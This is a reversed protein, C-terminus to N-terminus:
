DEVQATWFDSDDMADKMSQLIPSKKKTAKYLATLEDGADPDSRNPSLVNVLTRLGSLLECMWADIDEDLDLPLADEMYTVFKSCLNLLPEADRSKDVDLVEQLVVQKFVQEFTVLKDAQSGEITALAPALPDFAEQEGVHWTRLMAALCAITSDTQWRQEKGKLAVKRARAKLLDNKLQTPWDVSYDRLQELASQLEQDPVAILSWGNVKQATEAMKIHKRLQKAPLDKGAEDLRPLLGNAFALQKGFRKGSLIQTINITEIWHSAPLAMGVKDDVGQTAGDGLKSKSDARAPKPKKQDTDGFVSLAAQSTGRKRTSAEQVEEGKAEQGQEEEEDDDDEEDEERTAALWKERLEAVTPLNGPSKNYLLNSQDRKNEKRGTRLADMLRDAQSQLVHNDKDLFTKEAKDLYMSFARFTKYPRTEDRAVVCKYTKGESDVVSQMKLKLEEPTKGTLKQIDARELIVGHTSIEVGYYQGNTVECPIFQREKKQLAAEVEARFKSSKTTAECFTGWSMFNGVSKNYIDKCPVCADGCPVEKINGSVKKKEYECWGDAVDKCPSTASIAVIRFPFGSSVFYPYMTPRLNASFKAVDDYLYFRGM